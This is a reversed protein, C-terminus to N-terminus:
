CHGFYKCDICKGACAGAVILTGAPELITVGVLLVSLWGYDTYSDAICQATCDGIGTYGWDEWTPPCNSTTAFDGFQEGILIGAQIDVQAEYILSSNMDYYGVKLIDNPMLEEITIISSMIKDEKAVVTLSSIKDKTITESKQPIIYAVYEDEEDGSRTKDTSILHNVTIDDIDFAREVSLQKIVDAEKSENSGTATQLFLKRAVDKPANILVVDYSSHISETEMIADSLIDLEQKHCSNLLM